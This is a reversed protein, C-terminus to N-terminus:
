EMEVSLAKLKKSWFGRKDAAFKALEARTRDPLLELGNKSLAQEWKPDKMAKM